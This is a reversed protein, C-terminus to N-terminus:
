GLQMAVSVGHVVSAIRVADQVQNASLEAKILAAEHAKICTECGALVACAMSFLEFNAKNSAPKVMRQMRLRAPLQSYEEKGVLHRFRYYVTNMAMIAAAARADELIEDSVSAERADAVLADRLRADRLFMASCVAAGWAQEGALASQTLVNQLNLSLDRAADPLAERIADVNQM